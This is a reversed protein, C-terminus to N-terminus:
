SGGLAHADLVFVPADADTDIVVRMATAPTTLSPHALLFPVVGRDGVAGAAGAVDV